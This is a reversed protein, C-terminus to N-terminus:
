RSTSPTVGAHHRVHDVVKRVEDNLGQEADIVPQPSFKRGPRVRLRPPGGRSAVGRAVLLSPDDRPGRGSGRGLLSSVGPCRSALVIVFQTVLRQPSPGSVGPPTRFRTARSPLGESVPRSARTSSSVTATAM